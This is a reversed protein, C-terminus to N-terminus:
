QKVHIGQFYLDDFEVTKVANSVSPKLTAIQPNESNYFTQPNPWPKNAESMTMM